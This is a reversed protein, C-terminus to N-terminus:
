EEKELLIDQLEGNLKIGSLSLEFDSNQKELWVVGDLIAFTNSLTDTMIQRVFGKFFHKGEADLSQYIELTKKWNQDTAEDIKTNELLGAYITLNEDLVKKRLEEVFEDPKM